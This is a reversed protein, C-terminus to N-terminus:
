APNLQKEQEVRFRWANNSKLFGKEGLNEKKMLAFSTNKTIQKEIHM